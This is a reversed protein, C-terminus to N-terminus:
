PPSLKPAAAPAAPERPRSARSSPAATAAAAGAAAAASATPEGPAAASANGDAPVDEDEDGWRLEHPDSDADLAEIFADDDFEAEPRAAGNGQRCRLSLAVIDEDMEGESDFLPDNRAGARELSSPVQCAPRGKFCRGLEAEVSRAVSAAALQVIAASTSAADRAAVVAKRAAEKSFMTEYWTAGTNSWSPDM